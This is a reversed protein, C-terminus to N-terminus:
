LQPLTHLPDSTVQPVSLPEYRPMVTSRRLMVISPSISDDSGTLGTEWNTCGMEVM